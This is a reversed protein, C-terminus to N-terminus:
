LVELRDSNQIGSMAKLARIDFKEATPVRKIAAPTIFDSVGVARSKGQPQLPTPSAPLRAV